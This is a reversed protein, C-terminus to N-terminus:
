SLHLRRKVPKDLEAAVEDFSAHDVELGLEAAQEMALKRLVEAPNKPEGYIACIANFDLMLHEDAIKVPDKRFTRRGNATQASPPEKSYYIAPKWGGHFNKEEVFWKM